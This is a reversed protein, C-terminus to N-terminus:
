SLVYNTCGEVEWDATSARLTTLFVADALMWTGILVLVIAPLSALAFRVSLSVVRLLLAQVVYSSRGGPLLDLFRPARNRTARGDPLLVSGTEVTYEPCQEGKDGQLTPFPLPTTTGDSVTADAEITTCPM